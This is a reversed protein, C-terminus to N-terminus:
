RGCRVIVEKYRPVRMHLGNVSVCSEDEEMVSHKDVIEMKPNVIVTLPVAEVGQLKMM